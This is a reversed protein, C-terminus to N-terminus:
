YLPESVIRLYIYMYVCVYMYTVKVCYLVCYMLCSLGYLYGVLLRLDHYILMSVYALVCRCADVYWYLPWCGAPNSLM